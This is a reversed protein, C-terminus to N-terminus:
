CHKRYVIDNGINCIITIASPEELTRAEILEWDRAMIENNLISRTNHINASLLENHQITGHSSQERSDVCTRAFALITLLIITFLDTLILYIDNMRIENSQM